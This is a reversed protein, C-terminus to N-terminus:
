CRCVLAHREEVGVPAAGHDLDAHAPDLHAAVDAEDGHHAASGGAVAAVGVTAGRECWSLLRKGLRCNTRRDIDFRKYVKPNESKASELKIIIPLL